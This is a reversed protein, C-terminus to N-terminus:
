LAVRRVFAGTLNVIDCGKQRAAELFANDERYIADGTFARVANMPAYGAAQWLEWITATLGGNANVVADDTYHPTTGDGVFASEVLYFDGMKLNKTGLGGALGYALIYDIGYFALEEVTSDVSPGVAVGVSRGVSVSGGVAVLACTSIASTTPAPSM